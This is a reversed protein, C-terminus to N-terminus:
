WANVNDQASGCDDGVLAEDIQASLYAVCAAHIVATDKM